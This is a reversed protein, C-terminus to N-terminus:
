GRRTQEALVASRMVDVPAEIGTWLEFARAGQHVLMGLGDLGRLGRVAAERLLPTERYTLDMVIADPPLGRLDDVPIPIEDHWGLSTANVLLAADPFAETAVEGWPIMEAGFEQALAAAHADTRNAIVISEVEMERLAVIVARSAGGSGLVVASRIPIPGFKEEISSRFGYADTNDGVLGDPSPIITNVAGVTQATDTLHDLLPMVAQKHPVTVNAGLMGLLRLSAIRDPLGSLTTPWLEYVADVGRAGLAPNHMHPSLSHEVPDGIVGARKM